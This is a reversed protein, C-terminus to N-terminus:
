AARVYGKPVYATGFTGLGRIEVFVRHQGKFKLYYGSVGAFPGEVVDVIGCNFFSPVRTQDLMVDDQGSDAIIRLMDIKSDPFSVFDSAGTVPVLGQIGLSLLRRFDQASCRVMLLDEFIPVGNAVPLWFDCGDLDAVGELQEM